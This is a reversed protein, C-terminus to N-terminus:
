SMKEGSNLNALLLDDMINQGIAPQYMAATVEV